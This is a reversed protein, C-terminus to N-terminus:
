LLSYQSSATTQNTLIKFLQKNLLSSTQSTKLKKIKPNYTFFVIIVKNQYRMLWLKSFFVFYFNLKTKSKKLFFEKIIISFLTKNLFTKKFFLPLFMNLFIDENLKKTFNIKTSHMAFWHMSTGFKSLLPSNHQGM